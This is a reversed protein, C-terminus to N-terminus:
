QTGAPLGTDPALSERSNKCRDKDNAKGRVQGRGDARRVGCLHKKGSGLCARMGPVPFRLNADSGQAVAVHIIPVGEGLSPVTQAAAEPNPPARHCPDM